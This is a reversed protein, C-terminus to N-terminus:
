TKGCFGHQGRATPESGRCPLFAAARREGQTKRGTDKARFPRSEEAWPLAFGGGQTVIFGWKKSGQFPSLVNVAVSSTYPMIHPLM